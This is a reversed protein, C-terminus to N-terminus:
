AGGNHQAIANKTVTQAFQKADSEKLVGAMIFLEAIARIVHVGAALLVEMKIQQGAEAASAHISSMLPVLMSTAAQEPSSKEAQAVLQEGRDLVFGLAQKMALKLAQTDQEDLNM